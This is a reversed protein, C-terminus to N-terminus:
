LISLLKKTSMYEFVRQKVTFNKNLIVIAPLSFPRDKRSALLLPIDHYSRRKFEHEKNVFQQQDFFITDTTEVNMKVAYYEKKIKEVVQEKRFAVRDMKKCYVCWDAYFDIFVKKPKIKLSDELQEFTIWEIEKTEQAKITNSMAFVILFIKLFNNANM